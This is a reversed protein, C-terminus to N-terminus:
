DALYLINTSLVWLLAKKTTAFNGAMGPFVGIDVGDEYIEFDVLRAPRM